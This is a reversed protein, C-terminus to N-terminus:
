KKDERAVYQDYAQSVQSTDGEEKIVLIKHQQFVLLSDADLHSAYGDLSLVVWWDPHDRVLPMARIGKCLKPVCEQWMENTMYASANVDVFSGPPAPFHKCFNKLRDSEVTKGKGLFFRPGGHGAAVGVRLATISDRNDQTNKEHKKKGRKGLVKVNGESCQFNSEDLNATFHDRLNDFAAKEEPTNQPIKDWGNLKHQEKWATPYHRSSLFIHNLYACSM